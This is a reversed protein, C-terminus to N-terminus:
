SSTMGDLPQHWHRYFGFVEFLGELRIDRLIEYTKRHVRAEEAMKEESSANFNQLFRNFRVLHILEHTMIYLVFPFLALNPAQQMAALIAHDQLCIKYFDYASSGLSADPRQGEYRIVQAFPGQVIEEPALDCLTKIDYRLRVWQSTTMKYANNVLEEAMVVANNVIQIEEISFTKLQM